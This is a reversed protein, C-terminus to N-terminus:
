EDDDDEFSLEKVEEDQHNDWCNDCMEQNCGKCYILDALVTCGDCHGFNFVENSM